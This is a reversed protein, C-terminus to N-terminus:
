DEYNYINNDNIYRKLYAKEFAENILEEDTKNKGFKSGIYEFLKGYSKVEDLKQRMEKIFNDVEMYIGYNKELEDMFGKEEIKKQAFFTILM